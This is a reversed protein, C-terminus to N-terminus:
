GCKLRDILRIEEIENKIYFACAEIKNTYKKKMLKEKGDFYGILFYKGEQIIYYGSGTRKDESYLIWENVCEVFQSLKEYILEETIKNYFEFYGTEKLLECISVDKLNNFLRPLLIIKNITDNIEM